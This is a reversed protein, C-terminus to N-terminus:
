VVSKRDSDQAEMRAAIQQEPLGSRIKVRELRIKRPAEIMWVEDVFADLGSEYLIATEVFAHTHRQGMSQAWSLLDKKVAGHVISNLVSLKGPDNFVTEAILKRDIIGQASVASPHISCTLAKKISGDCDMLTKARSDCDYVAYGMVTLIRSVVSKGSGIGGAIATLKM